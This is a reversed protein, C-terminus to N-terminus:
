AHSHDIFFNFLDVVAQADERSRFDDPEPTPSRRHCIGDRVTRGFVYFFPTGEPLTWGKKNLVAQVARNVIPELGERFVADDHSRFALGAKIMNADDIRAVYAPLVDSPDPIWYEEGTQPEWPYPAEQEDPLPAFFDPYYEVVDERERHVRETTSDVPWKTVYWVGDSSTSRTFIKEPGAAPCGPLDQLLKFRKPM